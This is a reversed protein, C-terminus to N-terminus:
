EFDPKPTALEANDDIATRPWNGVDAFTTSKCAPYGWPKSALNVWM